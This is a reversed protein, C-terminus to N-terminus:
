DTEKMMEGVAAYTRFMSQAAEKRRSGRGTGADKGAVDFPIKKGRVVERAFLNFARTMSLNASKCCAEFENKLEADMRINVNVYSAM